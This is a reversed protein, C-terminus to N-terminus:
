IEIGSLDLEGLFGEGFLQREDEIAERSELIDMREVFIEEIGEIIGIM